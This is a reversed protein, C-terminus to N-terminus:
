AAENAHEREITIKLSAIASDLIEQTLAAPWKQVRAIQEVTKGRYFHLIIAKRKRSSLVGLRRAWKDSPEVEGCTREEIEPSLDRCQVREALELPEWEYGLAKAAAKLTLGQQRAVKKAASLKEIVGKPIKVGRWSYDRLFHMVAGRCWPIAFSSFRNGTSPDFRDVAKILGKIAEVELDDFPVPSHKSFRRAVKSALGRNKIV